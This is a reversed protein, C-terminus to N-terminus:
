TAGISTSSEAYSFIVKFKQNAERENLAPIAPTCWWRQFQLHHVGSGRM